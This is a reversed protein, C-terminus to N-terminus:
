AQTRADGRLWAVVDVLEDWLTHGGGPVVELRGRPLKSAIYDMHSRPVLLDHEGQVLLAPQEIAALEFGWPRAFALDDDIWGGLGGRVSEGIAERFVARIEPRALARRDPEPLESVIEDIISDPDGATAAVMEELERTLSEEGELAARLEAVNLDSMGALFDFGPDDAPAFGAAVAVRGVREGLVAACALAHPGGGSSGLVAFTDIDLADAIAAVDAACAAVDRGHQRDSGGYGPRDYFIARTGAIVDPARNLAARNGPTGHHFFVPVGDREGMETVALRRGDATAVVSDLM